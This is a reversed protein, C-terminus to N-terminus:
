KKYKLDSNKSFIIKNHNNNNSKYSFISTNTITMHKKINNKNKLSNNHSAYNHNINYENNRKYIKKSKNAETLKSMTKFGFINRKKLSPSITLIPKNITYYNKLNKKTNESKDNDINNINTINTNIQSKVRKHYVYNTNDCNKKNYKSISNKRENNSNIHINKDSKINISHNRKSKSHLITNQITNIIFAKNKTRLRSTNSTKSLSLNYSNNRNNNKNKKLKKNFIEMLKQQLGNISNNNTNNNNINNKKNLNSIINSSRFLQYPLTSQIKKQNFIIKKEKFIDRNTIPFNNNIINHSNNSPVISRDTMAISNKTNNINININITKNKKFSSSHGKKETKKLKNNKNKEKPLSKNNYNNVNLNTNLNNNNNTLLKAAYKLKKKVNDLYNKEKSKERIDEIKDIKMVLEKISNSEDIQENNKNIYKIIDKNKNDELGFVIRKVSESTNLIEDYAKSNFVKSIDEEDVNEEFFNEIAKLPSNKKNKKKEKNILYKKYEELNQQEDIVRQKRIVNNYLYKSEVLPTYNPFIVSTEQYYSFLKLLRQISEAKKYIRRLYESHDDAILYDKFVAVFHCPDNCMVNEIIQIEYKKYFHIKYNKYLLQNARKEITKLIIHKISKM